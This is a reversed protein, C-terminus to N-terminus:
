LMSPFYNTLKLKICVATKDQKDKRRAILFGIFFITFIGIFFYVVLSEEAENQYSPPLSTVNFSTTALSSYMETLRFFFYHHHYEWFNNMLFNLSNFLILSFLLRAGLSDPYEIMLRNYKIIDVSAHINSLIPTKKTKKKSIRWQEGNM